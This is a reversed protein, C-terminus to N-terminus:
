REWDPGLTERGNRTIAARLTAESVNPNLSFTAANVMAVMPRVDRQRHAGILIRGPFPVRGLVPLPGHPDYALDAPKTWPVTDRAEVLLITDNIGDPFDRPCKLGPGEMATGPGVFVQYPTTHPEATGDAAAYLRPMRPLLSLNHPSDWPEDLRFQKYLRDEDIFPLIAVRWSLLPRGNKDYIAPAPWGGQRSDSYNLFAMSLQKVDVATRVRILHELSYDALMFVGVGVVVAAVAVPGSAPFRGDRRWHRLSLGLAAAAPVFASLLLPELFTVVAAASLGWALGALARGPRPGAAEPPCSPTTEVSM